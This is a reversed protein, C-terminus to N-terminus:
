KGPINTHGNSVTRPKPHRTQRPDDPHEKAKQEINALETEGAAPTGVPAWAYHQGTKADWKTYTSDARPREFEAGAPPGGDDGDVESGDDELKEGEGDGDTRTFQSAGTQTDYPVWVVLLGSSDSHGGIHEHVQKPTPNGGEKLVRSRGNTASISDDMSSSPFTARCSYSHVV